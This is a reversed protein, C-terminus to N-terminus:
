KKRKEKRLDLGLLKSKDIQIWNENYTVVAKFTKNLSIKAPKGTLKEIDKQMANKIKKYKDYTEEDIRVFRYTKGM